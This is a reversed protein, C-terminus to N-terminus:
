YTHLEQQLRRWNQNLMNQLNALIHERAHKQLQIHCGSPLRGFGNEVGDLVERKSLGTISSYLVDFRFNASHQSIFDLILCSEKDEHQCLGRGNQQQFITAIQTRRMLLLTDVIPVVDGENYIYVTEIVHIDGRGLQMLID